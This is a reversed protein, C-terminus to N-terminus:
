KFKETYKKIFFVFGLTLSIIWAGIVIWINLNYNSTFIFTLFLALISFGGHAIMALKQTKELPLKIGRYLKRYILHIAVFVVDLILLTNIYELSLPFILLLIILFTILSQFILAIKAIFYSYKENKLFDKNQM